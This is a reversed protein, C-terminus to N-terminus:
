NGGVFYSKTFAYKRATRLDIKREDVLKKLSQDMSQMGENSGSEIVAEIQFTKSERILNRIATTAVM